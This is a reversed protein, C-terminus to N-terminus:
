VTQKCIIRVKSVMCPQSKGVNELRANRIIHVRVRVAAPEGGPESIEIEPAAIAARASARTLFNAFRVMELVVSAIQPKLQESPSPPLRLLM